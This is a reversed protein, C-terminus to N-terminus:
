FSVSSTYEISESRALAFLEKISVGGSFVIPPEEMEGDGLFYDIEEDEIEKLSVKEAIPLDIIVTTESRNETDALKRNRSLDFAILGSYYFAYICLLWSLFQIWTM